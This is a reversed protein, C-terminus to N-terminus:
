LQHADETARDAEVALKDVKEDGPYLFSSEDNGRANRIEWLHMRIRKVEGGSRVFGKLQFTM